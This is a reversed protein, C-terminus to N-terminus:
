PVLSALESSEGVRLDAVVPLHDSGTYGGLRFARVGVDNKILVHDIPLALPWLPLPYMWSPGLGFGQRANRLGGTEAVLALNRSWTTTNLDGVWVLPLTEKAAHRAADALLRQQRIAGTRTIPTWTHMAYVKFPSVVKGTKPPLAGRRYKTQAQFTEGITKERSSPM